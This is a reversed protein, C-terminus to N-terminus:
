MIHTPTQRRCAHNLSFTHIYICFLDHILFYLESLIVLYIHFGLAILILILYIVSRIYFNNISKEPLERKTLLRYMLQPFNRPYSSYPSIKGYKLEYACLRCYPGIVEDILTNKTRGKLYRNLKNKNCTTCKSDQNGIIDKVSSSKDEGETNKSSVIPKNEPNEVM